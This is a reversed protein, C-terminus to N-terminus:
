DIVIEYTRNGCLNPRRWPHRSDPSRFPTYCPIGTAGLFHLLAHLPRSQFNSYMNPYLHVVLVLTVGRRCSIGTKGSPQPVKTWGWTSTAQKEQRSRKERNVHLRRWCVIALEFWGRPSPSCTPPFASRSLLANTGDLNM